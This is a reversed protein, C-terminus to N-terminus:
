FASKLSELESKKNNNIQNKIQGNELILIKQSIENINDLDHSSIITTTQCQQNLQNLIKNLMLKSSPDLNAFPEDLILVKPEIIIASIVGVKKKNGESLDRILKSKIEVSHLFREYKEIKNTIFHKSKGYFSGSIEFYEIPALHDILFSEDLYSTTFSKWQELKNVDYDGIKISGQDVKILNLISRLLTTKGAGNNGLLGWISGKKFEVSPVNLTFNSYKKTLNKINVM